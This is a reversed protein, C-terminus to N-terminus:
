GVRGSYRPSSLEVAMRLAMASLTTCRGTDSNTMWNSIEWNEHPGRADISKYALRNWPACIVGAGHFFGGSGKPSNAARDLEGSEPDHWHWAPPVAQFRDCIAKLSFRSGDRATMGLILGPGDTERLSWGRNEAIQKLHGFQEAFVLETATAM